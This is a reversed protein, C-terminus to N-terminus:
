NFVYLINSPKQSSFQWNAKYNTRETKWNFIEIMFQVHLLFQGTPSKESAFIRIQIIYLYLCYCFVEPSDEWFLIFFQMDPVRKKFTVQWLFIKYVYWIPMKMRGTMTSNVWVFKMSRSLEGSHHVNYSIFETQHILNFFFSNFSDLSNLENLVTKKWRPCFVFANTASTRKKYSASFDVMSHIAYIEPLTCKQALHKHKESKRQCHMEVLNALILNMTQFPAISSDILRCAYKIKFQLRQIFCAEIYYIIYLANTSQNLVHVFDPMILLKIGALVHTSM